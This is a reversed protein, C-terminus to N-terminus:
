PSQCGHISAMRKPMAPIKVLGHRSTSGQEFVALINNVGPELELLACFKIQMQLLSGPPFGTRPEALM